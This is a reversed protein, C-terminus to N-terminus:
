AHSNASPHAASTNARSVSRAAPLGCAVAQACTGCARRRHLASSASATHKRFNHLCIAFAAKTSLYGLYKGRDFCEAPLGSIDYGTTDDLHLSMRAHGLTYRAPGFDDLSFLPTCGGGRALLCAL